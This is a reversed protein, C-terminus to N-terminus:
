GQFGRLEMIQVPTIQLPLISDGCLAGMCEGIITIGAFPCENLGLREERFELSLFVAESDRPIVENADQAIRLIAVGCSQRVDWQECWKERFEARLILFGRFGETKKEIAPFVEQEFRLKVVQWGDVAGGSHRRHIQSVAELMRPSKRIGNSRIAVARLNPRPIRCWQQIEDERKLERIAEIFGRLNETKNFVGVQRDGGPLLDFPFNGVTVVIVVVAVLARLDGSRFEGAKKWFGVLFEERPVFPSCGAGGM